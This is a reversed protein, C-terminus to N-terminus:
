RSVVRPVHSKANRIVWLFLFYSEINSVWRDPGLWKGIMQSPIESILFGVRYMNQANNYDNTTIGLDDLLNDATANSLNGRDLNLGFFMVLIWILIKWDAKRRVSQEERHTWRESPDFRHVNEYDPRPAYYGALAPDDFVSRVTAIADLDVPKKRTTLAAWFGQPDSTDEPDALNDGFDKSITEEPALNNKDIDDQQGLQSSSVIHAETETHSGMVVILAILV